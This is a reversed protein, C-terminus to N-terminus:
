RKETVITVVSRTPLVLTHLLWVKLARLNVDAEAAMLLFDDTLPSNILKLGARVAVKKKKQKM